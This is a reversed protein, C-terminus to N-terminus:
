TFSAARLKRIAEINPGGHDAIDVLANLQEETLLAAFAEKTPKDLVNGASLDNFCGPSAAAAQESASAPGSESAASLAPEEVVVIQVTKGILPNLEPLRLTDSELKRRLQVSTM